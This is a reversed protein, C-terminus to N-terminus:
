EEGGTKTTGNSIRQVNIAQKNGNNIILDFTVKEDKRLMKYGEMTISSYHVFINPTELPEHDPFIFGHGKKPDFWGVTGTTKENM